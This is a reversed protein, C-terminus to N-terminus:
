TDLLSQLTEAWQQKLKNPAFVREAWQRNAKSIASMDNDACWEIKRTLDKIDPLRLHAHPIHAFVSAFCRRKFWKTRVLLEKQRVYENMPPYNTTIVPMGSCIPELVMFGIGEMKSPQIAVDGERYLEANDARNDISVEIRKDQKSIQVLAKAVEHSRPPPWQLYFRRRLSKVKEILNECPPLDPMNQIRIKLRIDKRKTKRFAHITELTGKGDDYDILGANHVFLRAPGTINERVSFHSIDIPLPLYVSNRFGYNRVTRLTIQTPCVFLNCFHWEKESHRFWEWNPVCVSMVKLQRTLTLLSPHWNYQEFFIIGDLKELLSKVKEDSDKPDLLIEHPSGLPKNVLRESPIVIHKEINLVAKLYKALYGLGTNDKYAVIAWKSFDTRMTSNHM